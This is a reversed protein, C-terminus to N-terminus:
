LNIFFYFYLLLFLTYPFYFNYTIVKNCMKIEACQLCLGSPRQSQPFGSLSEPLCPQVSFCQKTNFFSSVFCHSVSFSLLIMLISRCSTPLYPIFDFCITCLDSFYPFVFYIYEFYCFYFYKLQDVKNHAFLKIILLIKETICMEYVLCYVM